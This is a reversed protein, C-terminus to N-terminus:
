GRRTGLSCCFRRRFEVMPHSTGDTSTSYELNLERAVNSWLEIAFGVRQGDKAFSFPEM